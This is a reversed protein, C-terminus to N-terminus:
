HITWVTLQDGRRIVVREGAVAVGYLVPGSSRGRGSEPADDTPADWAAESSLAEYEEGDAIGRISGGKGFFLIEGGIAVPTAWISEKLRKAYVEDGTKLDLCYVVGTANVYYCRNAIAIPSGFSSTARKAQWVYDAQWKGDSAQTIGIVGNSKAASGSSAEGRGVTAGQLFRGDGLPIPTPSSNGSIGDFEWLREGTTPDLGVLHGIGSLVLHHGDGVPVLRPSAWSTAGIGAVKWVTKGTQKNISMVYPDESREVWVFASTDTQEVSASLGHRADLPGFEEVLDREWRVKGDHTLAILNGGEFFCVLGNADAAPTPAARSVYSTNERPTANKLDHQWLKSGDSLKYAVVHYTEKQPGSVSTVYVTEGWVVPSSQGYGPIDQSWGQKWELTDTNAPVALTGGNQFSTWNDAAFGLSAPYTVALLMAAFGCSAFKARMLVVGLAALGGVALMALDIAILIM